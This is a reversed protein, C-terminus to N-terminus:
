PKNASFDGHYPIGWYDEFGHALTDIQEDTLNCISLGGADNVQVTIGHNEGALQVLDEQEPTLAGPSFNLRM